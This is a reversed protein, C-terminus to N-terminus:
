NFNMAQTLYNNSREHTHYRFLLNNQVTDLQACLKCVILVSYISTVNPKWLKGDMGLFRIGMVDHLTTNVKENTHTSNSNNEIQKM